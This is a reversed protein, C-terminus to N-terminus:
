RYTHVKWHETMCNKGKYFIQPNYYSGSTTYGSPSSQVAGLTFTM